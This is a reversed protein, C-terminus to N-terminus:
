ARKQHCSTILRLIFPPLGARRYWNQFLDRQSSNTTCLSMQLPTICRYTIILYSANYYFCRRLYNKLTNCCMNGMTLLCYGHSASELNLVCNSSPITPEIGHSCRTTRRNGGELALSGTLWKRALTSSSKSCASCFRLSLSMTPIIIWFLTFWFSLVIHIPKLLLSWKAPSM